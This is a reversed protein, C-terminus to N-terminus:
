PSVSPALIEWNRGGDQTQLLMTNTGATVIAWGNQEDVFDFSASDWAVKKIM